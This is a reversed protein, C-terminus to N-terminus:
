TLPAFVTFRDRPLLQGKADLRLSAPVYVLMAFAAVLLAAITAVRPWGRRLFWRSGQGVRRALVALPIDSHEAANYLAPAVHPAIAQLKEETDRVPVGAEFQEALLASRAPQGLEERDDRIPLLVLARCRSE